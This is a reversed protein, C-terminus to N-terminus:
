LDLVEGEEAVAFGAERLARCAASSDDLAPNTHNLHVFRVKARTAPPAASLRQMTDLMFPHPIESLDRGPLEAGDHFTGDLYAVDVHALLDELSRSWREWKDIDPLWAVTRRPGRILFGVTESLEDRHPVLFPTVEIREGLRVPEGDQLPRLEVNGLRVLQSWPGDDELFSKMRPMAYVPVAHAGLVERGLCALGLYHGVHAHTLLIGDLIGDLRRLQEGFDPTADIMWRRGSAPDVIAMCAVHLRRAPDSWRERCCARSCGAQPAGGDQAIGLVVMYPANRGPSERAEPARCATLALLVLAGGIRM